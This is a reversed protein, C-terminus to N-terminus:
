CSSPVGPRLAEARVESPTVGYRQRFSRNFYSLDSFGAELAIASITWHTFCPDRLMAHSRKLRMELSFATFTTGEEEFLLQIYRPTVGQRLAVANVTVEGRGLNDSVDAKIARLRAARVGQGNTIEAGDRVFAEVLLDTLHRNFMAAAAPSFRDAVQFGAALYGAFLVALPHGQPLISGCLLDPRRVREEILQKPLKVVLHRYPRELGFAVEHM